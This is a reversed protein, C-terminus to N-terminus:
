AHYLSKKLNKRAKALNYKFIIILFIWLIIMPLVAGLSLLLLRTAVLSTFIVMFQNNTSDGIRCFLSISIPGILLGFWGFNSLTEALLTSTIGFTFDKVPIKMSASTIYREYNYPIPKEAWLFRPVYLVLAHYITQFRYDLIKINNSNLESYIAIKLLHDRGYDLRTIDYVKDNAISRVLSTQYSYSFLGFSFVIIVFLILLKGGKLLGKILLSITITFITYVIMSRKGNLWIAILSPILLTLWFYFNLPYLKHNKQLFILGMLGLLSFVCSFHILNHYSSEAESLLGSWVAGYTSYINPNPSFFWLIIPLFLLAYCILKILFKLKKGLKYNQPLQIIKSFLNSTNILIRPSQRNNKPRGTYWWIIPVIVVYLCYIVFTNEDKVAMRIAPFINYSPQGIVVDLLLPVGFFVFYFILVIDISYYKKFLLNKSALMVWFFLWCVVLIKVLNVNNDIDIM